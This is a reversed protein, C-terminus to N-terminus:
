SGRNFFQDWAALLGSSGGIGAFWKLGRGFSKAEGFERAIGATDKAVAEAKQRNSALQATVSTKFERLETKTEITATTNSDTAVRMHAIDERMGECAGALKGLANATTIDNDTAVDAGGGM